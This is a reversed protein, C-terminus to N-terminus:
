CWFGTGGEEVEEWPAAEPPIKWPGGRGRRELSLNTDQRRTGEIARRTIGQRLLLPPTQLPPLPRPRVLHRALRLPQM